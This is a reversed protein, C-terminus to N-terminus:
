IRRGSGPYINRADPVKGLKVANRAIKGIVADAVHCYQEIKVAHALNDPNEPDPNTPARLADRFYNLATVIVQCEVNTLGPQAIIEHSM